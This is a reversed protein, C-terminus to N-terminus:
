TYFVDFYINNQHIFSNVVFTKQKITNVTSYIFTVIKLHMNKIKFSIITKLSIKLCQQYNKITM